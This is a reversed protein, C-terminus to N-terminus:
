HLLDQWSSTRRDVISAADRDPKRPTRSESLLGDVDDVPAQVPATLTERIALLKQTSGLRAIMM